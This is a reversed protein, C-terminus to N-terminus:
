EYLKSIIFNEASKVVSKHEENVFNKLNNGVSFTPVTEDGSTSTTLIVNGDRYNTSSRKSIDVFVEFLTSENNVTGDTNRIEGAIRYTQVGFDEPQKLNLNRLFLNTYRPVAVQGTTDRLFDYTPFLNGISPSLKHLFDKVRAHDCSVYEWWGDKHCLPGGVGKISHNNTVTHTEFFDINFIRFDDSFSDATIPDGGEWSFYSNTSGQNPTGAMILKRVDQEYEHGQIYARSVLGGMSHAVIDVRSKGSVEKAHTIWPKLYLEAITPVSLSWDYPVHFLDCGFTHGNQELEATLSNFGVANNPDHIQLARSNWLPIDRILVPTVRSQLLFGQRKTSGMIGPILLVPTKLKSKDCKTVEKLDRTVTEGCIINLATTSVTFDPSTLQYSGCVVNEFSYLGAPGITTSHTNGRSDHISLVKGVHSYHVRGTAKGYQPTDSITAVNFSNSTGQLGKGEATATIIQNIGPSFLKVQGLWVGNQMDIISPYIEGSASTLRLRGTYSDPGTIQVSFYQDVQQDQILDFTFTNLQPPIFTAPTPPPPLQTLLQRTESWTGDPLQEKFYWNQDTKIYDSLNQNGIAQNPLASSLGATSSAAIFLGSYKSDLQGVTNGSSWHTDFTGFNYIDDNFIYQGTARIIGRNVFLGDMTTNRAQTKGGMSVVTGSALTITDASFRASGKYLGIVPGGLVIEKAKAHGQLSVGFGHSYHVTNQDADVLESQDTFYLTGSGTFKPNTDTRGIRMSSGEALNIQHGNTFLRYFPRANIDNEINWDGTLTVSGSFSGFDYMGTGDILLNTNGMKDGLEMREGVIINLYDNTSGNIVLNQVVTIQPAKGGGTWYGRLTGHDNVAISNFKASENTRMYVNHNIILDDDPTPVCNCNWTAPSLLHSRKVTEYTAALITLPFFTFAMVLLLKKGIM